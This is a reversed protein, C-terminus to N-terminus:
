DRLAREARSALARSVREAVGAGTLGIEDLVEARSAHALFIKPIGAGLVPVLSGAARLAAGVAATVGTDAVNDEVVVVLDAAAAMRTLAAPVPLVWRPDVVRVRRGDATLRRAADLAVLAMAGVSVVLVQPDGDGDHLVDLDDRVAAVPVPVPTTGKPFRLVTPADNIELAERLARRLTVGDRPAAVHLGPVVSAL